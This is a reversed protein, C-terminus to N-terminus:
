GALDLRPREDEPTGPAPPQYHRRRQADEHSEEQDSGKMGRVAEASEVASADLIVEDPRPTRTGPRPSEPKAPPRAPSPGGTAGVISAGLNTPIIGV